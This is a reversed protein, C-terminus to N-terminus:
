VASRRTPPRWRARTARSRARNANWVGGRSERVLPRRLAELPRQIMTSSLARWSRLLCKVCLSAASNIIKADVRGRFYRQSDMGGLPCPTM